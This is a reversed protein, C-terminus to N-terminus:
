RGVAGGGRAGGDRGARRARHHHGHLDHRRRPRLARHVAWDGSHRLPVLHCLRHRARRAPGHDRRALHALHPVVAHPLAVHAARLQAARSDATAARVGRRVVLAPQRLLRRRPAGTLHLLALRSHGQARLRAVQVRLAAQQRGQARAGCDRQAAAARHAVIASTQWRPWCCDLRRHRLEARGNRGRGLFSRPDRPQGRGM